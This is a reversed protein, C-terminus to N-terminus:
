PRIGRHLVPVPRWGARVAMGLGMVAVALVWEGVGRGDPGEAAGPAVPALAAARVNTAQAAARERADQEAVYARYAAPFVAVHYHPPHRERTVDLVGAEELTLLADELWSRSSALRPVRLDVAMGAPHVSLEHANSPQEARARTLSTVVLQEGTAARYEGALREIFLRVEPRAVPHSIRNVRYDANGTVPVLSGDALSDGIEARTDMFGYGLEVAVSHQRRMSGASGRLEAAEAEGAVVGSLLAVGLVTTVIRRL